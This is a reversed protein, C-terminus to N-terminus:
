YGCKKGYNALYMIISIILSVLVIRVVLTLASGVSTTTSMTLLDKFCSAVYWVGGIIVSIFLVSALYRGLSKDQCSHYCKKALDVMPSDSTSTSKAVLTQHQRTHGETLVPDTTSASGRPDTGSNQHALSWHSITNAGHGHTAQTRLVGGAANTQDEDMSHQPNKAYLSGFFDDIHMPENEDDYM